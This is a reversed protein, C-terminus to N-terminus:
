IQLSLSRLCWYAMRYHTYEVICQSQADAKGKESTFWTKKPRSFIEDEHELINQGKKIEM